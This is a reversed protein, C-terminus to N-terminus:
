PKEGEAVLAPWLCDDRHDTLGVTAVNCLPCLREPDDDQRNAIVLVVARILGRLDGGRLRTRARPRRPGVGTGSTKAEARERGGGTFAGALALMEAFVVSGYPWSDRIYRPADNAPVGTCIQHDDLFLDYGGSIIPGRVKLRLRL